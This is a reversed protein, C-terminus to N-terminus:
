AAQGRGAFNVWPKPAGKGAYALRAHRACYPADDIKPAGCFRFDPSQPDGIPWRCHQEALEAFTVACPSHDPPLDAAECAPAIDPRPQPKPAARLTPVRRKRWGVVSNPHKKIGRRIGLRHLKGIVANRTIGGFVAAIEGASFNEAYLKKLTDIREDTWDSRPHLKSIM